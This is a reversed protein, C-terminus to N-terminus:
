PEAQPQHPPQVQHPPQPEPQALSAAEPARGYDSAMDKGRERELTRVLKGQNAFDDKGYHLDVTERHRSLAVYSAHRDLGPTALVHVKDVTMGQAKHITAAYGHDIHAYHKTDFGVQRGDDLSVRMHAKDVHAITGLTGNKVGLSRENKLFMIRDGDAFSRAGREVTLSVDRGLEGARQLQERAAENLSRVEDNTHTLIIRSAQPDAIRDRDWREILDRRADERTEAAHVHGHDGYATIAEHTRGTALARTADRQWDHAQRRISSIEVSGHREAIARFSAGAEIAQLQQPDGVLVVKAGHAEAEQFVREMQRTGIMGAEDVVLISRDTL